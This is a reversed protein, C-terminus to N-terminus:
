KRAELYSALAEIRTPFVDHTICKEYDTVCYRRNPNDLLRELSYGEPLLDMWHSEIIAQAETYSRWDGSAHWSRMSCGPPADYGLGPVAADKRVACVRRYLDPLNLTSM